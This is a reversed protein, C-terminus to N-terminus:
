HARGIPQQAPRSLLGRLALVIFGGALGALVLLAHMGPALDLGVLSDISFAGASLLGISLSAAGLVFPFELGGKTSFFGNPLHVQVSIVVAQAILVAAAIPTLFGLALALGAVLEAGIAAAAFLAPPHFGMGRVANLWRAPGPGEWWGFAKQAGHAAFTLGVALRLVLLALDFNAM